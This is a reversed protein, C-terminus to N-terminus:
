YKLKHGSFNCLKTHHTKSNTTVLEMPNSKDYPQLLLTNKHMYVNEKSTPLKALEQM